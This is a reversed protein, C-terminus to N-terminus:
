LWTIVVLTYCTNFFSKEVVNEHLLGIIKITAKEFCPKKLVRNVIIGASICFLAKL